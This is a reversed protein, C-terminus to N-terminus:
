TKTVSSIRNSADYALTLTAVTTGGAGGTKYVVTEIEGAGNGAAVYTLAIYNYEGIEFGVMKAIEAEVDQIESIISNQKDETAPNIETESTNVLGVNGVNVDGDIVIETDVKLGKDTVILRRTETGAENSGLLSKDYEDNILAKEHAM